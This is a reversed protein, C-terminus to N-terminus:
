SSGAVVAERPVANISAIRGGADYTIPLNVQFHGITLHVRSGFLHAAVGVLQGLGPIAATLVSIPVTVDATSVVLWHVTRANKFAPLVTGSNDKACLDDLEGSITGIGPVNTTLTFPGNKVPKVLVDAVDVGAARLVVQYSLASALDADANTWDVFAFHHAYIVEGLFLHQKDQWVLSSM